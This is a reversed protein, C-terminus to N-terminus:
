IGIVLIDHEVNVYYNVGTRIPRLVGCLLLILPRGRLELGPPNLQPIIVVLNPNHKTLNCPLTILGFGM